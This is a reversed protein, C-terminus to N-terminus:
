GLFAFAERFKEKGGSELNRGHGVLIRDFDWELIQGISARVAAHDHMLRKCFRSPAFRRLQVGVLSFVVRSLWPEDFGLNFALDTVILSRSARHFFVFENAKPMGRVWHQALVESWAPDPAETLERDFRVTKKAAALGPAAHFLAAPYERQFTDLCEDHVINPGIVHEITGLKALDARLGSTVPIPSLIWLGGSPLRVGILQRGITIGKIKYPVRKVWLGEQITQLM